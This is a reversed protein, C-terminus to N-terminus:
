KAKLGHQRALENLDDTSFEHRIAMAAWIAKYFDQAAAAPTKAGGQIRQFVRGVAALDHTFGDLEDRADQHKDMEFKLYSTISSLQEHVDAVTAVPRFLGDGLAVVPTDRLLNNIQKIEDKSLPTSDTM